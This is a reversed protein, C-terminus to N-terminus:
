IPETIVVAFLREFSNITPWVGASYSPGGLQLLRNVSAGRGVGAASGDGLVLRDHAIKLGAQFIESLATPRCMLGQQGVGRALRSGGSGV